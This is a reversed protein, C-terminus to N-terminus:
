MTFLSNACGAYILITDGTYGSVPHRKCCAVQRCIMASRPVCRKTDCEQYLQELFSEIGFSRLVMLACAIGCDWSYRQSVHEIPFRKISHLDTHDVPDPCGMTCAKRRWLVPYTPLISDRHDIVAYMFQVLQDRAPMARGRAIYQEVSPECSFTLVDRAPWTTSPVVRGINM